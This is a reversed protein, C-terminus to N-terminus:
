MAVSGTVIAIFERKTEATSPVWGLAKCMSPLCEVMSSYELGWKNRLNAEAQELVEALQSHLCLGTIM